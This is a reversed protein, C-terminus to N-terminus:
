DYFVADHLRPLTSSTANFRLDQEPAALSVQRQIQGTIFLAHSALYNRFEEALGSFMDVNRRLEAFNQPRSYATRGAYAASM